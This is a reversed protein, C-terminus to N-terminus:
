FNKNRNKKNKNKEKNKQTKGVGITYFNKKEKLLKYIPKLFFFFFFLQKTKNIAKNWQPGM